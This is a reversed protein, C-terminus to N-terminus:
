MRAPFNIYMLMPLTSHMRALSREVFDAFARVMEKGFQSTTAKWPTTTQIEFTIAYIYLIFYRRRTSFPQAPQPSTLCFM